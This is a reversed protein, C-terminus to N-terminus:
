SRTLALVKVTGLQFVSWSSGEPACSHRLGAVYGIGSPPMDAWASERLQLQRILSPQIAPCCVPKRCNIRM